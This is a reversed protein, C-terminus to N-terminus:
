TTMLSTLESTPEASRPLFRHLAPRREVADAPLLAAAAAPHLDRREPRGATGRPERSRPGPHRLRAGAQDARRAQGAVPGARRLEGADALRVRDALLPRDGPPRAGTGGM